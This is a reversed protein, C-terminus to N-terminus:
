DNYSDDNEKDEGFITIEYSNDDYYYSHEDTPNERKEYQDVNYFKWGDDEKFIIFTATNSKSREDYEYTFRLKVKRAKKIAGADLDLEDYMDKYRNLQSENLPEDSLIEYKIEPTSKLKKEIHEFHKKLDKEIQEIKKDEMDQTALDASMEILKDTDMAEYAKVFDKIAGKYGTFSSIVVAAVVIIVIAIVSPIAIKIVKKSTIEKAVSALGAGNIKSQKNNPDGALPAGCYGCVVAADDLTAGCNGCFKSM